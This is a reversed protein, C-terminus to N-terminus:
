GPSASQANNSSSAVMNALPQNAINAMPQLDIGKPPTCTGVSTPMPPDGVELKDIKTTTSSKAYHIKKIKSVYELYSVVRTKSVKTSRNPDM